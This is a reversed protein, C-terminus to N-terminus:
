NDLLDDIMERLQDNKFPKKLFTCKKDNTHLKLVNEPIVGSMLIVPMNRFRPPGNRLITIIDRGDSAPMFVDLIMLAVEPTKRLAELADDGNSFELCKHGNRELMLKVAIKVQEEDEALIIVAM